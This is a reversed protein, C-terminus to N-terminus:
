AKDWLNFRSRSFVKESKKSAQSLKNRLPLPFSEEGSTESQIRTTSINSIELSGISPNTSPQIREGKQNRPHESKTGCEETEEKKRREATEIADLINNEILIGLFYLSRCIKKELKELPNM